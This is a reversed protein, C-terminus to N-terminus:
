KPAAQFLVAKLNQPDLVTLVVFEDLLEAAPVGAGILIAACIALGFALALAIILAQWAWGLQQRIELTYRRALWPQRLGTDASAATPSSSAM